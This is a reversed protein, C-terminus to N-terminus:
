YGLDRLRQRLTQLPPLVARLAAVRNRTAVAQLNYAARLQPSQRLAAIDRWADPGVELEEVALAQDKVVTFVLTETRDLWKATSEVQARLRVIGSRVESSRVLAIEGTEILVDLATLQPSYESYNIAGLAWLSDPSADRLGSLIRWMHRARESSVSDDRIAVNLRSETEDLDAALAALHDRERERDQRSSWVSEAGLAILVGLVIILVERVAGLRITRTDASM